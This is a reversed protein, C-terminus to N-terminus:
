RCEKRNEDIYDAICDCCIRVDGLQYYDDGDHTSDAKYIKGFCHDCQVYNRDPDTVWEEADQVPDISKRM